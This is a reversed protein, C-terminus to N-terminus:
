NLYGKLTSEIGKNMEVNNVSGYDSFHPSLRNQFYCNMGWERFVDRLDGGFMTTQYDEIWREDFPLIYWWVMEDYWVKEQSGNPSKKYFFKRGEKLVREFKIEEREILWDFAEYLEKENEDCHAQMEYESVIEKISEIIESDECLDILTKYFREKLLFNIVEEESKDKLEEVESSEILNELGDMEKILCKVALVENEKNLSYRFLSETDPIYYHSLSEFNDGLGNILSDRYDPNRHLMIEVMDDIDVECYIQDGKTTYKEWEYIDALDKPTLKFKEPQYILLECEDISMLNIDDDSVKDTLQKQKVLYEEIEPISIIIEGDNFTLYKTSIIDKNGRGSNSTLNVGVIVYGESKLAALASKFEITVDGGSRYLNRHIINSYAPYYERLSIVSEETPFLWKGEESQSNKEFFGRVVEIEYEEDKLGLFMYSIEKDTQWYDVSEKIFQYWKKIM